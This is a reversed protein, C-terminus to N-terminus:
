SRKHVQGSIIEIEKIFDLEISPIYKKTLWSHITNAFVEKTQKIYPYKKELHSILIEVAIKNFM